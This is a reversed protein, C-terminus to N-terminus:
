QPISIICGAGLIEQAISCAFAKMLTLTAVNESLVQTGAITGCNGGLPVPEKVKTTGCAGIEDQSAIGQALALLFVASLSISKFAHM